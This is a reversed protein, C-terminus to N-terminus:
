RRTRARADHDEADRPGPFVLARAFLSDKCKGALRIVEYAIGAVFPLLALKYLWRM